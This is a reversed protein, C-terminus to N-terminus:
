VFIVKGEVVNSGWFVSFKSNQRQMQADTNPIVDHISYGFPAGVFIKTILVAKRLFLVHLASSQLHKEKYNKCLHKLKVAKRHYWEMGRPSSVATVYTDYRTLQCTPLLTPSTASGETGANRAICFELSNQEHWCTRWDETHFWLQMSSLLFM